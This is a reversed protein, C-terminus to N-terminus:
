FRGKVFINNNLLYTKSSYPNILAYLLCMKESYILFSGHLIVSKINPLKKYRQKLNFFNLKTM